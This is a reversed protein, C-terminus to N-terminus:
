PAVRSSLHRLTRRVNHLSVASVLAAQGFRGNGWGVTEVGADGPAFRYKYEEGGRLFRFERMGDECASRIANVLVILGVSSRSWSLDRGGQYFYEVGEFRFGYWAAVAQDEVELLWLRLWGEDFARHAFERHFAARGMALFASDLGWRAAHLKFLLDLDGDLQRGASLRFRANHKAM